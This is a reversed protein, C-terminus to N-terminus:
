IWNRKRCMQYPLKQIKTNNNDENDFQYEEEEKLLDLFKM